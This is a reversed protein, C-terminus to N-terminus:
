GEERFGRGEDRLLVHYYFRVGIILKWVETEEGREGLQDVIAGFM